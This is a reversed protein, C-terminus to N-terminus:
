RFERTRKSYKMSRHRTTKSDPLWHSQGHASKAADFTHLWVLSAAPLCLACACIAARMAAPRECSAAFEGGVARACGRLLGAAPHDGARRAVARSGYLATSGRRPKLFHCWRPPRDRLVAALAYDGSHAVRKTYTTAASLAMLPRSSRALRCSSLQPACDRLSQWVGRPTTPQTKAGPSNRQM